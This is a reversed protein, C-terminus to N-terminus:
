LQVVAGPGARFARWAVEPCTGRGPRGGSSGQVDAPRALGWVLRMAQAEAIAAWAPAYDPDLAVAQDLFALAEGLALGRRATLARGKLYMEYAEINATATALRPAAPDDGLTAQLREAISRAIEDQVAFVDVLERDFRESWLQYGDAANVLRVGIRLRSGARRVSGELLTRVGLQEAVQQPEVTRGKFSFVSSRAAVRLGPVQGLVSIIEETMGDSFFESEPDPSLNAFPLVAVSKDDRRSPGAQRAAALSRALEQASQFRRAPEKALCRSVIRALVDPIETRLRSLSSPTDRLIASMVAAVSGGGFPRRGALLEHMLVGMSFLDSRHDVPGAEVQEPSMYPVTGLVLGHATEPRTISADLPEDRSFHRALGFDLVKVLDTDTVMVNAPKLDRHTIGHEHAVVLADALPLVVDFFRDLSLPGEAIVDVLSRGDVREMTMFRVGHAEEVSHITVINPHNLAAVTQAERNFRELAAPDQALREPLVKLAITRKLRPDTAEYVEGMGGAGLAGVIEYPGLRSRRELPM